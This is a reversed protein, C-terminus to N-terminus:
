LGYLRRPNDCLQAALQPQDDRVDHDWVDAAEIEAGLQVMVITGDIKPCMVYPRLRSAMDYYGQNHFLYGFRSVVPLRIM